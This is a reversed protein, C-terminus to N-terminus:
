TFYVQAHWGPKNPLGGRLTSMASVSPAMLFLLSHELASSDKARFRLKNLRISLVNELLSVLDRLSRTFGLGGRDLQHTSVHTRPTRNVQETRASKRALAQLCLAASLAVRKCTHGMWHSFTNACAPQQNPAEAHCHCSSENLDRSLLINASTCLTFLTVHFVDCLTSLFLSLARSLSTSRTM